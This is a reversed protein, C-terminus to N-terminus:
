RKLCKMEKEAEQAALFKELEAFDIGFCNNSPNRKIDEVAKSHLPAYSISVSAAKVTSRPIGTEESIQSYTKGERLKQEIVDFVIM